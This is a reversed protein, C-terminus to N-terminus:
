PVDFLRQLIAADNLDVDGDNDLDSDGFRAASCGAPATTAGAGGLCGAFVAYDATDTDGDADYDVEFRMEIAAMMPRIEPNAMFVRWCLGTRYNEIMPAVPGQDIAIFGPAFWNQDPNFADYFGADGLLAAGYTDLFYRMTALSEAPTYPMASMAATPSITGNDNTPSHASYDWPNFSATLGWSFANYGEHGAPNDMVYARQIRSINRANDYYNAYADRKYRPDFGFNSYHTFFLPGGMPEGVWQRFGYYSNANTYGGTVWGFHYASAPMPHTPSAIALLYVIQAENYGRIQHDLAWGFNPSWHWYLVNGGPFRRYWDWEVGEWMQTARTRIETEIPDSPNDFYQRVALIGEVLFATEVLDGGNDQGGAFAITAGTNGNYHHSWAGHYRPTVDQLFALITRVRGAIDSRSAFGREAGVILTMLGMGTGGTTVTDLPHGMGVGERAMKCTPHAYDYFYRFHALQVIDMLEDDTMGNYLASVVDSEVVDAGGVQVGVYYYRRAAGGETDDKYETVSLPAGNLKVFPGGASDGRYVNYGQLGATASAHWVLHNHDAYANVATGTVTPPPATVSRLRLNDLYAVGSATALNEFVFATIFNLGVQSRNSVNFSITKWVGTGTPLGTAPQWADPPSWNSSWIGMVGPIAGSTAIYVDALL